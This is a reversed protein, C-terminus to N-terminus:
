RMKRRTSHETESCALIVQPIGTPSRSASAGVHIAAM